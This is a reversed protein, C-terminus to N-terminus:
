LRPRQGIAPVTAAGRFARPALSLGNILVGPGQAIGLAQCLRFAAAYTLVRYGRKCGPRINRVVAARDILMVAAATSTTMRNNWLAHARQWVVGANAASYRYFTWVDSEKVTLDRTLEALPLKLLRALHEVDSPLLTIRAQTIHVCKHGRCFGCDRLPKGTLGLRHLHFAVRAELSTPDQDPALIPWPRAPQRPRRCRPTRQSRTPM